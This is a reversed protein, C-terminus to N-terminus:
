STVVIESGSLAEFDFTAWAAFTVPLTTSAGGPAVGLLDNVIGHSECTTIKVVFRDWIPGGGAFSTVKIPSNVIAQYCAEDPVDSARFQKLVICDITPQLRLARLVEAGLGGLLGTILGEAAQAASPWVSTPPGASQTQAACYLVDHEGQTNTSLTRFFTTKCSFDTVGPADGAVRIKAGVKPWGWVERGTVMGITYDIFVYPAWFVLRPLLEGSRYELLPAWIAAERGPLWGVVDAGSTCRAIDMFSFVAVPLPVQYRVSGAAAPTLLTDVLNQLAQTSAEVCFVHAKADTFVGPPALSAAGHRLWSIFPASM